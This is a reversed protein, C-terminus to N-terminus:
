VKVHGNSQAHGNRRAHGYSERVGRKIGLQKDLFQFSKQALLAWAGVKATLGGDAAEKPVWVEKRSEAVKILSNHIRVTSTEASAYITRGAGTVFVPCNVRDLVKGDRSVDLSFDQFRRLVDGPCDRGMMWKGLSFEWRTPFDVSVHTDISWNFFAESIWGSLWLNAYWHPMRTLAVEWLSYFPDVSICAKIRPDTSARLAYYAGMSAGAVAIRNMDLQLDPYAKALDTLHDLVKGTVVEFDPRLPIKNKRLVYGQGPGDFILVAYGLEPGADGFLYHLEEKTSDAGGLNLLVPIKGPVRKAEPPLYLYGPLSVGGEYPIELCLVQGEMFPISSKFDRIAREACQLIREDGNGLMYPAARFYNSARLYAKRALASYGNSGAEAAISEAREGQEYWAAYWSEPNHKKIKGVAELFEAIDCGGTTATGLIRTLEFDFLESKFFGFMTKTLPHANLLFSPRINGLFEM